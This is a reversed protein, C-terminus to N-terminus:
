PKPSPSQAKACSVAPVAKEVAESIILSEMRIRSDFNEGSSVNLRGAGTIRGSYLEIISYDYYKHRFGYNDTNFGIKVEAKVYPPKRGSKKMNEFYEKWTGSSAFSDKWAGSIFKNGSDIVFDPKDNLMRTILIAAIAILLIVVTYSLFAVLRNKFSQLGQALLQRSSYLPRTRRRRPPLLTDSLRKTIVFDKKVIDYGCEICLIACESMYSNCAPCKKLNLDKEVPPKLKPTGHPQPFNPEPVKGTINPRPLPTTGKASDPRMVAKIREQYLKGAKELETRATEDLKMIPPASTGSTSRVKAVPTLIEMKEALKIDYGIKKKPVELTTAACSLEFYMEELTRGSASKNSKQENLESFRLLAAQHIRDFNNEFLKVGLIDYFNRSEDPNARLIRTYIDETGM